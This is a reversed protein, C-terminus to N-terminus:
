PAQWIATEPHMAAWAFWFTHVGQIGPPLAALDVSGSGPDGMLSVQAGALDIRLPEETLAALPVAISEGSGALGIVRTKPNLRDDSPFVPFVPGSPDAMYGAYPNRGYDRSHGTDFSLVEGDPHAKSWDVWTAMEFALTTLEQGARPGTVGRLQVQSWLSEGDAQPRRDYLLVNSNYLLGSIGFELVEGDLRRDFVAVSDCLPCYTVAVPTEGVTDNVGEHWNLVRLPYAVSEGGIEVGVVRDKPRLGDMESVPVRGPTTLAPIGDKPPGGSLIEETPIVAPTLTFGTREVSRSQLEAAVARGQAALKASHTLRSHWRLGAAVCLVALAALLALVRLRTHSKDPARSEEGSDREPPLQQSDMAVEALAIGDKSESL